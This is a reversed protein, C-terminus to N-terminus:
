TIHVVHDKSIILIVHLATFRKSQHISKKRVKGTDRSVNLDDIQKEPMYNDRLETIKKFFFVECHQVNKKMEETFSGIKLIFFFSIVRGM